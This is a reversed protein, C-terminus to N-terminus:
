PQPADLKTPDRETYVTAIVKYSKIEALRQCAEQHTVITVVPGNKECRQSSDKVDSRLTTIAWEILDISEL